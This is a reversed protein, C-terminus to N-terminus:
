SYARLFDRILRELIGAYLDCIEVADRAHGDQSFSLRPVGIRPPEAGPPAWMHIGYAPHARRETPVDQLSIFEWETTVSAGAKHAEDRRQLNMFRLLDQDEQSQTARWPEFWSEYKESEEVRLAFTVSRAASLFASLYFDSAEPENCTARKSEQRLIKLCFLCEQMKKKTAEIM